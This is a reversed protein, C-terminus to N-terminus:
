KGRKKAPGGMLKKLYSNQKKMMVREEKGGKEHDYGLTHLVGHIILRTLEEKYGAGYERANEKAKETSIYIDGGEYGYEGKTFRFAIVDTPYNKMRYGTNIGTIERNGTFIINIRQNKKNECLLVYEATKETGTPLSGKVRCFVNVENNNRNKTTKM